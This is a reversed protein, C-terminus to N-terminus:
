EGSLLLLLLMSQLSSAAVGLDVAVAVGVGIAALLLLLLPLSLLLSSSRFTVNLETKMKYSRPGRPRQGCGAPQFCISVIECQTITEGPSSETLGPWQLAASSRCLSQGNNEQQETAALKWAAAAAAAENMVASFIFIRCRASCVSANSPPREIRGNPATASKLTISLEATKRARSISVRNIWWTAKSIEGAWAWFWFRGRLSSYTHTHMCVHM